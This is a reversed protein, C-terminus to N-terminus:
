EITDGHGGEGSFYVGDCAACAADAECGGFEKGGAGCCDADCVSVWFGDLLSLVVEGGDFGGIKDAVHVNGLTILDFRPDLADNVLISPQVARRVNRPHNPHLM